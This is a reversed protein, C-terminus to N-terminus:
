FGRYALVPMPAKDWFQVCLLLVLAAAFAFSHSWSSGEVVRRRIAGVFDEIVIWVHLVMAALIVVCLSGLLLWLHARDFVNALQDTTLFLCSVATSFYAFVAGRAIARYLPDSALEAYGKRGLLKTMVVQYLRNGSAGFGLVLGYIFFIGTTGHWMGMALFTFFFAIVGLYPNLASAPWRHTM